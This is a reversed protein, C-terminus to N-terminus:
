KEKVQVWNLNWIQLVSLNETLNNGKGGYIVVINKENLYNM